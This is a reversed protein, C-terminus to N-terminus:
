PVMKTSLHNEVFKTTGEILAGTKHSTYKGCFSHKAWASCNQIMQLSFGNMQSNLILGSNQISFPGTPVRVQSKAMAVPFKSSSWSFPRLHRLQRLFTTLYNQANPIPHGYSFSSSLARPMQLFSEFAEVAEFHRKQFFGTCIGDNKHFTRKGCIKHHGKNPCWKQPFYTKWVNQSARIFKQVLINKWKSGNTWCM